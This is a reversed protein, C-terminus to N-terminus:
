RNHEKVFTAVDGPVSSDLAHGLERVAEALNGADWRGIVRAATMQLLSFRSVMDSFAAAWAAADTPHPTPSDFEGFHWTFGEPREVVTYGLDTLVSQVHDAFDPTSFAM